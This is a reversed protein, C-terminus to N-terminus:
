AYNESCQHSDEDTSDSYIAHLAQMTGKDRSKCSGGLLNLSALTGFGKRERISVLNKRDHTIASGQFTVHVLAWINGRAKPGYAIGESAVESATPRSDFRTSAHQGCGVVFDQLKGITKLPSNHSRSTKM